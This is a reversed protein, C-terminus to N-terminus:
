PSTHADPVCCPDPRGISSCPSVDAGGTQMTKDTHRTVVDRQAQMRVAEMRQRLENIDIGEHVEEDSDGLSGVDIVNMSDVASLLQGQRSPDVYHASVVSPVVEPRMLAQTTDMSRQQQDDRKPAKNPCNRALHGVIGCVFCGGNNRGTLTNQRRVNNGSVPVTNPNVRPGRQASRNNSLSGQRPMSQTEEQKGQWSATSAQEQPQSAQGVSYGQQPTTYAATQQEVPQTAQPGYSMATQTPTGGSATTVISGRPASTVMMQGPGYVAPPYVWSPLQQTWPSPWQDAQFERRPQVYHPQATQGSMYNVAVDDDSSDRQSTKAKKKKTKTDPCTAKTHGREGCASCHRAATKTVKKSAADDSSSSEDSSHKNRRKKTHRRASKRKSASSRDKEEEEDDDDDDVWMEDSSDSDSEREDSMALSAVVDNYKIARKNKRSRGMNKEEFLQKEVDCAIQQAQSLTFKPTQPPDSRSSQGDSAASSAETPAPRLQMANRQVLYQAHMAQPMKKTYMEILLPDAQNSTMDYADKALQNFRRNFQAISEGDKLKMSDIKFKAKERHGSVTFHSVFAVEYATWTSHRTALEEAENSVVLDLCLIPVVNVKRADTVGSGALAFRQKLRDIFQQPDSYCENREKGKNEGFRPFASVLKSWDSDRLTNTSTSTQVTTAQVDGSPTTAVTLSSAPPPTISRSRSHSQHRRSAHHHRGRHHRSRSSDEYRDDDVDGEDSADTLRRGSTRNGHTARARRHQRARSRSHGEQDAHSPPPDVTRKVPM